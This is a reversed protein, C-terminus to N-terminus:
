ENEENKNGCLLEIAKEQWTVPPFYPSKKILSRLGNRDERSQAFQNCLSRIDVETQGKKLDFFLSGVIELKTAWSLPVHHNDLIISYIESIENVGAECGSEIKNSDINSARNRGGSSPMTPNLSVKANVVDGTFIREGRDDYFGTFIGAFIVRVIFDETFKLIELEEDFDLIDSNHESEYRKDKTIVYMCDDFFFFRGLSTYSFKGDQYIFRIKAYHEESEFGGTAIELLHSNCFKKISELNTLKM